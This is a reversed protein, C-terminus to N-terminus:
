FIFDQDPFTIGTNKNYFDEKIVYIFEIDENVVIKVLEIINMKKCKEILYIPIELSNTLKWNQFSFYNFFYKSSPKEVFVTEQPSINRSKWFNADTDDTAPKQTPNILWNWSFYEKM